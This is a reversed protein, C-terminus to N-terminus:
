NELINRQQTEAEQESKEEPKKFADLIADTLSKGVSIAGNIIARTAGTTGKAVGEVFRGPLLAVDEIKVKDSKVARSITQDVASSISDFKFEPNDMRTRITFNLIVRGQGLARFIGLVATTIREAKHESQDPPRPSFKIDALELRCQAVIENSQGQIDSIFDLSAEKIRSNELDVWNSYYPHLYVGDIGEIELRAQMNKKFLDIWGSAYVVGENSNRQWPIKADLRFNTIISKPFLCLNDVDLFIKELTIKIGSESITRDTFNIIGDEVELYKIIVPLTVKDERRQLGGAPNLNEQSQALAREVNTPNGEAAEDVPLEREWSIEPKVFKVENLIIKGGLLGILSPSVSIYNIDALEGIRLNRIELTLPMKLGVYGISVEKKLAEELNRALLAKGKVSVFIYVASVFLLLIVLLAIIIKIRLLM